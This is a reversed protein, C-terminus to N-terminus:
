AIRSGCFVGANTTGNLDSTDRDANTAYVEFWDTSGNADVIVTVEQTNVTGPATNIQTRGVSDGGTSGNKAIFMEIDDGAVVNTWIIRAHLLYKGAVTPTFRFTTHDYDSNTDFTETDYEVQDVGTINAQASMSASFSPWSTPNPANDKIGFSAVTVGAGPTEEAIVDIKPTTLTKAALTQTSSVDVLNKAGGGENWTPIAVSHLRMQNTVAGVVVDDSSNMTLMQRITGGVEKGNIKASNELTITKNTLTQTAALLAFTDDAINPVTHGNTNTAGGFIKSPKIPVDYGGDVLDDLSKAITRFQMDAGDIQNLTITRGQSDDRTFTQRTTGSSKFKLDEFGGLDKTITGAM